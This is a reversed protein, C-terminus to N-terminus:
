CSCECGHACVYLLCAHGLCHAGDKCVRMFLRLTYKTVRMHKLAEEVALYNYDQALLLGRTPREHWQVATFRAAGPVQIAVESPVLDSHLVPLVREHCIAGGLQAEMLARSEM